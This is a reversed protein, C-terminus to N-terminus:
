GLTADQRWVPGASPLTDAVGGIVAGLQTLWTDRKRASDFGICRIEPKPDRREYKAREPQRVILVAFFTECDVPEIRIM